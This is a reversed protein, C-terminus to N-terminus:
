HDWYKMFNWDTTSSRINLSLDLWKNSGKRLIHIEDGAPVSPRCIMENHDSKYTGFM